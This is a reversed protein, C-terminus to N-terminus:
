QNQSTPATMKSIYDNLKAATKKERSQLIHQYTNETVKVDSHGMVIQADKAPVDADLLISAYAHRLQHMTCAVGLEQAWKDWKKRLASQSIDFLRGSLNDPLYPILADLLDVKRVGAATKTRRLVVPKNSEYVIVKNIYIKKADLDFDEGELALAEGRRLGTFILLRPLLWEYDGTMIKMIDEDSPPTRKERPLNREIQFGRAPNDKATGEGIAHEYITSIITKQAQVTKLAYKRNIYTKLYHKVDPTTIEDMCMEGFYKVARDYAANYGRRTTPSLEEWREDKWAEACQKFTPPAKAKREYEAIKRDIEQTTKGYFDIVKGNITKRRRYRGDARKKLRPM